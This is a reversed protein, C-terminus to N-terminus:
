TSLQDIIGNWAYYCMCVCGQTYTNNICIRATENCIDPAYWFVSNVFLRYQRVSLTNHINHQFRRNDVLRNTHSKSVFHSRVNYKRTTKFLSDACHISSLVDKVPESAVFLPIM